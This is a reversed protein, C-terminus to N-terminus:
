QSVTFPPGTIRNSLAATGSEVNRSFRSSIAGWFNDASYGLLFWTWAPVDASNPEWSWVLYMSIWLALFHAVHQLERAHTWLLWDDMTLSTESRADNIFVMMVHVIAGILVLLAARALVSVQEATVVDEPIAGRLGGPNVNYLGILLFPLGIAAAIGAYSASRRGVHGSTRVVSRDNMNFLCDFGGPQESLYEFMKAKLEPTPLKEGFLADFKIKQGPRTNELYGRLLTPITLVGVQYIIADVSSRVKAIRSAIASRETEKTPWDAGSRQWLDEITAVKRSAWEAVAPDATMASRMQAIEAHVQELNRRFAQHENDLVTALSSEDAASNVADDIMAISTRVDETQGGISAASSRFVDFKPGDQPHVDM